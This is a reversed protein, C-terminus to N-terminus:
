SKAHSAMSDKLMKIAFRILFDPKKYFLSGYKKFFFLPDTLLLRFNQYLFQRAALRVIEDSTLYKNKINPKRFHMETYSFDPTFLDEDECQKYLPTGPLPSVIYFNNVDFKCEAAFRFTDKMQEPTEEPFGFVFSAKTRIGIKRCLKVVERVKDLKLPKNIIKTLVEQNGSEVALSLEYCGSKQMLRLLEEDLTWIATGNPTTWPMTLGRDIMGNFIDKARQKDSTVNDDIFLLEEIQYDKVLLEIEDLVNKASRIRFKKGWFETSACFSCRAPCGRSTFIPMPRKTKTVGGIPLGAKFYGEIDLLDRAPLPLTDLDSIFETNDNIVPKGDKEIFALGAVEKLKNLDPYGDVLKLLTIEGEGLVIFDVEDKIILEDVLFTPHNGGLITVTDPSALKVAAAIELVKAISSSLICSLGLFDPKWKLVREVIDEVRLGYTIFDGDKIITDCGEFSADILNIEHGNERLYAGLYSIGFPMMVNRSSAALQTSPPYILMVRKADM